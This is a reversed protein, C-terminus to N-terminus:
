PVALSYERSSVAGRTHARRAKVDGRASLEEVPLEEDMKEDVDQVEVEGELPVVMVPNVSAEVRRALPLWFHGNQRKMGLERVAPDVQLASGPINFGGSDRSCQWKGKRLWATWQCCLGDCRRPRSRLSSTPAAERPADSLRRAPTSSAIVELVSSLFSSQAGASRANQRTTSQVLQSARVLVWDENRATWSENVKVVEVSLIWSDSARATLPGVDM